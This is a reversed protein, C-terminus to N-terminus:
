ASTLKAKIDRSKRYNRFIQHVLSEPYDAQVIDWTKTVLTDLTVSLASVDKQFKEETESLLGPIEQFVMHLLFRNGHIYLSRQRGSFKTEFSKLYSNVERMVRVCRWLKQGTTSDNFIRHYPKTKDDIDEWIKGLERKVQVSLDVDSDVCALSIAAEELACNSEDQVIVEDSRIYHYKVPKDLLQLELALREQQSDQTVFDRKEIRNQTNAAKTIQQGFKEPASSLSILRVLVRANGVDYGKDFVEGINGVTQAGNVISIGTCHFVGLSKDSGGVAAKSISKCLLTIGNNFYWFRDPQNRLTEQISNNVDNAGIFSRINDSFLRRHFKSWWDAIDSTSITGYYAQVPEDIRGWDALNIDIDIPQGITSGAIAKHADALNFAILKALETPDNLEKILEDLDAQAHSSLKDGTFAIVIRLKVEHDSLADEIEKATKSEQVKSNFKEFNLDILDRIGDRFKKIDGLEPSGTGAQIWKSQVMWLLKNGKDFHIADIGNDDFTDFIAKASIEEDTLALVHLAYAALGRSLFAKDKEAEPRKKLDSLDIKGEFKKKITAQLHTLHLKSM